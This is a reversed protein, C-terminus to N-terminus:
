EYIKPLHVVKASYTVEVNREIELIAGCSCQYQDDNDSLEWSDNDEFGCIPCTVMEELSTDENDFDFKKCIRVGCYTKKIDTICVSYYKDKLKIVSYIEVEADIEGIMKCKTIDDYWNRDTSIDYVKM